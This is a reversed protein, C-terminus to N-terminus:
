STTGSWRKYLEHRIGLVDLIKGIIFLVLDDITKPMIYFAPSAPLIVVGQNSLIYLNRLDISSLPTERVVIILRNHLRIISSATRLLLNDQISNALKAITNLSAPVIVMESDILRSSSALPSDLQNEEYVSNICKNSAIYEYLDNIGSEYRAVLKSSNTIIVDIYEYKRRLLPCQDILKLAYVIGSAGTIGIILRM